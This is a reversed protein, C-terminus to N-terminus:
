LPLTSCPPPPQVTASFSGSPPAPPAATRQPSCLASPGGTQTLGPPPPPSPLTNLGRGGRGPHHQPLPGTGSVVASGPFPPPFPSWSCARSFMVGILSRFGQDMSPQDLPRALAGRPPWCPLCM